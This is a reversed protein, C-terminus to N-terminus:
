LADPHSIHREIYNSTLHSLGCTLNTINKGKFVSGRTTTARSQWMAAEISRAKKGVFEFKRVGRESRWSVGTDRMKDDLVRACERPVRYVYILVVEPGLVNGTRM